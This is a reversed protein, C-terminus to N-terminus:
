RGHRRAARDALYKILATNMTRRVSILPLNVGCSAESSAGSVNHPIGYTGMVSIARDRFSNVIEFNHVHNKGLGNYLYENPLSEYSALHKGNLILRPVASEPKPQVWRGFEHGRDAGTGIVMCKTEREVDSGQQILRKIPV